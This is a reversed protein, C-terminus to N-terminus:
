EWMGVSHDDGNVDVSLVNGFDEDVISVLSFDKEELGKFFHTIM